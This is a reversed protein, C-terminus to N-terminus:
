IVDSKVVIVFCLNNNGMYSSTGIVSGAPDFAHVAKVRLFVPNTPEFKVRLM